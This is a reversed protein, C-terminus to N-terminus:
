NEGTRDIEGTGWFIKVEPLADSSTDFEDGLTHFLQQLPHSDKLFAENETQPGM